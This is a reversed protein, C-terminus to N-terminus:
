IPLRVIQFTDGACLYIPNYYSLSETSWKNSAWGYWHSLTNQAIGTLEGPTYGLHEIDTYIGYVQRRKKYTNTTNIQQIAVINSWDSIYNSLEDCISPKYSTDTADKVAAFDSAITFTELGGSGGGEHTGTIGLMQIDKKINEAKIVSTDLVVPVSSLVKGSDPEVTQPANAGLTLTKSQTPTAPVNVDANAFETVDYTGNATISKTGSPTIGPTLSGEVGFVSVGQKINGAVLNADGKVTQAGALYQGAAITQDSTTPTYTQASKSSITGTVSDGNNDHATTGSLMKSAAVTDQTLNIGVGDILIKSTGM